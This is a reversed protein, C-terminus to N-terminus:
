EMTVPANPKLPYGLQLSIENRIKEKPRHAIFLYAPDRRVNEPTMKDPAAVIYCARGGNREQTYAKFSGFAGLLAPQPSEQARAAATLLFLLAFVAKIKM